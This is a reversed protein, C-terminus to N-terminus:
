HGLKPCLSGLSCFLLLFSLNSFVGYVSYALSLIIIGLRISFTDLSGWWGEYILLHSMSFWFIQMLRFTSSRILDCGLEWYRTLYRPVCRLFTSMLFISVYADMRALRPGNWSTLGILGITLLMHSWVHWTHILSYSLFIVITM